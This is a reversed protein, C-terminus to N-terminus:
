SMTKTLFTLSLMSLLFLCVYSHQFFLFLSPRQYISYSFSMSDENNVCHSFFTEFMKDSPSFQISTSAPPSLSFLYYVNKCCPHISFVNDRIEAVLSQLIQFSMTALTMFYLVQDNDDDNFVILPSQNLTILFFGAPPSSCVWNVVKSLVGM